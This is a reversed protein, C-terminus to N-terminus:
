GLGFVAFFDEKASFENAHDSTLRPIVIEPPYLRLACYSELQSSCHELVRYFISETYSNQCRM